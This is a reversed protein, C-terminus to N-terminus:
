PKEEENTILARLSALIRRDCQLAQVKEDVESLVDMRHQDIATEASVTMLEGIMGGVVTLAADWGYKVAEDKMGYAEYGVGYAYVMAAKHKDNM